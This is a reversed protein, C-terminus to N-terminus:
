KILRPVVNEHINYLCVALVAKSFAIIITVIDDDLNNLITISRYYYDYFEM